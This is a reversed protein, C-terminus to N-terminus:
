GARRARATRPAVAPRRARSKVEASKAPAQEAKRRAVPRAAAKRRAPTVPENAIALPAAEAPSLKLLEDHAAKMYSALHPVDPMAKRCATLGFDLSGNYSQVTINLAVSHVAISVPYYTLMKAGCLYLPFQPGPVNSIAVNTIPPMRNALKSRGFLAAIGSILWPAGLSPFDTPIVSKMSAVLAKVAASSAHIAQLRALPDAIDSALSVRMMTAQTNMDTNGAERLSVPVGALLPDKPLADIDALYHRLAGSCVALVVDNITAEHAKAIRRAEALPLSLSAFARQNTIAVNLPTRPAFWNGKPAKGAAAAEAATPRLRHWLTRALTPVSRVLKMTQQSTNRAGAAALEAIGFTDASAARRPPAGRVKRPVPGTDLIANALAIGSAGDLAAHHVKSYFAVHRAGDPADPATQLGEIVYFEWLPRSRDLLSSHLRGVLKDLQARSGPKPLVTSRIHYELDLDPEAVWVPNALEFPMNLLKRRFVPAQHLRGAIHKRVDEVFDGEYGPPLEYVHLSGVHMPNEPTELYLFTADLGSLHDM